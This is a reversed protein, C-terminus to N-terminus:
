PAIEGVATLIGELTLPRFAHGDLRLAHLVVVGVSCPPGLRVSKVSASADKVAAVGADAVRLTKLRFLKL